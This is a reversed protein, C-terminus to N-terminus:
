VLILISNIVKLVLIRYLFYDIGIEFIVGIFWEFVGFRCNEDVIFYIIGEFVFMVYFVFIVRFCLNRWFSRFFGKRREFKVFVILLFILNVGRFFKFRMKFLVKVVKGRNGM